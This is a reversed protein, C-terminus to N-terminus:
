ARRRKGLFVGAFLLLSAASPEPVPITTISFAAGTALTGSQDPDIGLDTNNPRAFYVIEAEYLNGSDTATITFIDGAALSRGSAIINM